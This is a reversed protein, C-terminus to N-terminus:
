AFDHPAGHSESAGNQGGDTAEAASRRMPAGCGLRRFDGPRSSLYKVFLRSLHSADHFGALSAVAELKDETGQLLQRAAEVRVRNVYTKLTMGTEACFLRSLHDPSTGHARSLDRVTVGTFHASVSEM